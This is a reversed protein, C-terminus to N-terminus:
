FKSSAQKKGNVRFSRTVRFPLQYWKFLRCTNLNFLFTRCHPFFFLLGACNKNTQNHTKETSPPHTPNKQLVANDAFFRVKSKLLCRVSLKLSLQIVWQVQRDKQVSLHRLKSKQLQMFHSAGYCNFLHTLLNESKHSRKTKVKNMLKLRAKPM